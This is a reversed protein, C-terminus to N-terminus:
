RKAEVVLRESLLRFRGNEDPGTPRDAYWASEFLNTVEGFEDAGPPLAEALDSRYEGPTRGPIDALLSADVLEGVLARYRCLLAQKWRGERECEEAASRWDAPARGAHTSVDLEPEAPEARAPQNALFRYLLYAVAGIVVIIIVWSIITFVSGGMGSGGSLSDPFLKELQDGIWGFIRDLISEDSYGAVIEAAKDKIEDPAPQGAPVGGTRAAVLGVLVLGYATEPRPATEPKPATEPRRM